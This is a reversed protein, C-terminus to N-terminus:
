VPDAATAHRAPVLCAALSVVILGVAVGFLTAPDNPEVEYLFGTLVRTSWLTGVMGLTLGILATGMGQRLVLRLVGAREAGLAMRVGLERKRRGVAHSLSGYLGAAALLMAVSAFAGILMTQFRPTTRTDAMRDRMTRVDRPPIVPSLRAVAKRLQPVIVEATGPVVEIEALLLDWARWTEENPPAGPRKLGVNMTILGDPEFGPEVSRIRVFSSFLLAAGSLLLVPVAM